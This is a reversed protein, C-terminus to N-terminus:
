YQKTKIYSNWYYKFGNDLCWKEVEDEYKEEYRQINRCLVYLSFRTGFNTNIPGSVVAYDYKCNIIPGLKVIWYNGPIPVSDFVVKRKSPLSNNECYSIGKISTYRGYSDLGQNFISINNNKCNNVCTYVATVNSYDPGTGLFKTSRSTAAQFWKGSYMNLNVNPVTDIIRGSSISISLWLSLISHIIKIM